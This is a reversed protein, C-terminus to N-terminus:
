GHFHPEVTLEGLNREAFREALRPAAERIADFSQRSRVDARLAWGTPTRSLLLDTGPLTHDAMRLLVKGEGAGAGHADHVALQRVHREVLDAFANPNLQPPPAVQPPQAADRVAAQAHWAQALQPTEGSASSPDGGNGTGADDRRADDAGARAVAADHALDHRMGAQHQAGMGHADAGQQARSAERGEAKGQGGKGQMLEDFRRVQEASPPEQPKGRARESADADRARRADFAESTSSNASSNRDIGM